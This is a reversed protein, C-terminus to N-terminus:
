KKNSTNLEWFSTHDTLAFKKKSFKHPNLDESLISYAM